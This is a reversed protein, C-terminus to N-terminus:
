LGLVSTLEEVWHGFSIKFEFYIDDRAAVFDSENLEKVSKLFSIINALNDTLIIRSEMPLDINREISSQLKSFTEDYYKNYNFPLESIKTYQKIDIGQYLDNVEQAFKKIQELTLNKLNPIRLFTFENM